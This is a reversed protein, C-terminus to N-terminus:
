WEWVRVPWNTRFFSNTWVFCLFYEHSSYIPPLLYSYNNRSLMRERITEISQPTLMWRLDLKRGFFMQTKTSIIWKCVRFSLSAFSRKLNFFWIACNRFLIRIFCNRSYRKSTWAGCDACWNTPFRRLSGRWVWKFLRPLLMKLCISIAVAKRFAGSFLM